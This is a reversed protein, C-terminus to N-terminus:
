GSGGQVMTIYAAALISRLKHKSSDSRSPILIPVAGGISIDAGPWPMGLQKWNKYVETLVAGATYDPAFLVDPRGAVRSEYKKTEAAAKSAAIDFAMPGEIICGGREAFADVLSRSEQISPTDPFATYQETFDLLAIKPKKVGVSRADEVAAAALKKKEEYAAGKVPMAILMPRGEDTEYDEGSSDGGRCSFLVVKGEGSGSVERRYDLEWPTSAIAKYIINAPGIWPFLMIEPFRNEEIYRQRFVRMLEDPGDADGADFVEPSPSGFIKMVDEGNKRIKGLIKERKEEDKINSVVNIGGDCIQSIGFPSEFVRMHTIINGKQIVKEKQQLLGKMLRDTTLNGKLVIQNRNRDIMDASKKLATETTACQVVDVKEDELVGDLGKNRAVSEIKGRDGILRVHVGAPVADLFSGVGELASSSDAVPVLLEIGIESRNIFEVMQSFTRVKDM